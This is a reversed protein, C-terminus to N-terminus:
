EGSLSPFQDWTRGDLLRGGIKSTTGGVQKFLFPVDAAVCQDRLSRAWDLHMPRHHAGSEGGTIVWDLASTPNAIQRAQIGPSPRHQGEGWCASALDVPGLLPECSLFRVAAPTQLLLPIREDAAYQDEVSTGLWVNPLPWRWQYNLWNNLRLRERATRAISDLFPAVRNRMAWQNAPEASIASVWACMREPRKTLIQYTHQRTVTMVAFVHELFEDPVDEHFLDSVSNVFVRRPTRWHLPASLREPLLQIHKFPQHYQAPADPWNGRKWAIYRKNHLTAAYCHDCGVSVHTCGVIPNWVDSAWEIKTKGM